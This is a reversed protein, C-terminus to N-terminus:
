SACTLRQTAEAIKASWTAPQARRPDQPASARSASGLRASSRTLRPEVVADASMGVGHACRAWRREGSTDHLDRALRQRSRFPSLWGVYWFLRCARHALNATPTECTSCDPAGEVGSGPGAAPEIRPSALVTGDDPSASWAQTSPRMGSRPSSSATASMSANRTTANPGRARHPLGAAPRSRHHRHDPLPSGLLGDPRRPLHGPRHAPRRAARGGTTQPPRRDPARFRALPADPLSVGLKTSATSRPM